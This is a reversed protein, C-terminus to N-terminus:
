IMFDVGLPDLRMISHTHRMYWRALFSHWKCCTRVSGKTYQAEIFYTGLPIPKSCWACHLNPDNLKNPDLKM